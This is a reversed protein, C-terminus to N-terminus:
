RMVSSWAVTPGRKVMASGYPLRRAADSVANPADSLAHSADRIPASADSVARVPSHLEDGHNQLEVRDLADQSM